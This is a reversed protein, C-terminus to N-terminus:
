GNQWFVKAPTSLMVCQVGAAYLAAECDKCIWDHTVFAICERAFHGAKRLAVVEAHGEQRCIHTCKEYGVGHTEGAATRPCHVQPNACDNSGYFVAGSPHILWCEVKVKACTM